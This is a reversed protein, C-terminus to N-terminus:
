SCLRILGLLTLGSLYWRNEANENHFFQRHTKDLKTGNSSDDLCLVLIAEHISKFNRANGADKRLEGYAASWNDRNGATLVGVNVEKRSALCDQGIAFL